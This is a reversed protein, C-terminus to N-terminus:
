LMMVVRTNSCTITSVFSNLPSTDIFVLRSYCPVHDSFIRLLHHVCLYEYSSTWENNGLFRDLCFWQHGWGQQNNCWTYEFSIFGLDLLANNSVFNEFFKSKLSYDSFFGGAHEDNSLIANFHGIVLCPLNLVIIGLLEKWVHRQHSVM